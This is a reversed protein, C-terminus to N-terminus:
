QGTNGWDQGLSIGSRATPTTTILLTGGEDDLASVTLMGSDRAGSCFSGKGFLECWGGFRRAM